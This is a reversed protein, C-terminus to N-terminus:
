LRTRRTVLPRGARSKYPFRGDRWMTKHQVQRDTNWAVLRTWHSAHGSSCRMHVTVLTITARNRRIPGRRKQKVSEGAQEADVEVDQVTTDVGVTTSEGGGARKPSM